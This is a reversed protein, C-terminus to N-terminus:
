GTPTAGRRRILPAVVDRVVYGTYKRAGAANMHDGDVFDSDTTVPNHLHDHFPAGHSEVLAKVRAFYEDYISNAGYIELLASASATNVVAVPVGAERFRTLTAALYGLQDEGVRAAPRDMETRYSQARSRARAQQVEHAVPDLPQYGQIGMNVAGGPWEGDIFLRILRGRYALTRFINSTLVFLIDETEAGARVMWVVDRLRYMTALSERSADYVIRTSVMYPSVFLVVARPPPTRSLSLGALTLQAMPPAGSLGLNYASWKGGLEDRLAAEAAVPDLSHLTRSDGIFVVQPPQSMGEYETVRYRYHSEADLTRRLHSTRFALDLTVLVALCVLVTVLLHAIRGRPGVREPLGRDAREATAGNDPLSRTAAPHAEAM